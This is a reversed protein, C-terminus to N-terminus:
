HCWKPMAKKPKVWHSVHLVDCEGQSIRFSIVIVLSGPSQCHSSTSLNSRMESSFWM